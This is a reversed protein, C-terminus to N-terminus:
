RCYVRFEGANLNNCFVKFVYNGKAPFLIRWGTFLDHMQVEGSFQIKRPASDSIKDEKENYLSIDVQFEASGEYFFRTFTAFEAGWPYTPPSFGQFVGKLEYNKTFIDQHINSCCLFATVKPLNFEM